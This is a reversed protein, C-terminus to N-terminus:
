KNGNEPLPGLREKFAQFEIPSMIYIKEDNEPYIAYFYEIIDTNKHILELFAVKEGIYSDYEAFERENVALINIAILRMQDHTLKQEM